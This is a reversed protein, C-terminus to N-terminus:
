TKWGQFLEIWKRVEWIKFRLWFWKYSREFLSQKTKWDRKKCFIRKKEKEKLKKGFSEYIETDNM